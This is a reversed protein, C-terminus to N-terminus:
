ERRLILAPVISGASVHTADADIEVLCDVAVLSSLMGSGQKSLPTAVLTGDRRELRARLFHARGPSKDYSEGLEVSVRPREAMELGQMRRLLPRVFLEFTVMSSVPNGPLGFVIQGNDRVGFAVPKGPKIAVKWFRLEIGVAEFAPRVHDFDGVSVGGSTLLVDYDSLSRLASVTAGLEDGIIGADTAVAGAERIQECLALNNSNILQGPGPEVGPPVLEDGTAVVVVRPRAFVSVRDMNQAALMAVEGPGLRRQGELIRAGPTVDSGAHRVHRGKAPTVDFIAYGDEERVEERMVVTDAGQPMPAGTMIKTTHGPQLRAGPTAGAQIVGDIPLRGPLEAARVAFGDMASNDWPPLTRTATVADALVRGAARRLEVIERPLPEACALINEVATALPEM